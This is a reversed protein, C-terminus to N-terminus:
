LINVSNVSPPATHSILKKTNVFTKLRQGKQILGSAAVEEVAQHLLNHFVM